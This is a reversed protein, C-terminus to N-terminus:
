NETPVRSRTFTTDTKGCECFIGAGCGGGCTSSAPANSHSNSSSGGAFGGVTVGKSLCIALLNQVPGNATTLPVVATAPIIVTSPLFETLASPLAFGSAGAIGEVLTNASVPGVTAGVFGANTATFFIDSSNCTASSDLRRAERERKGAPGLRRNLTGASMAGSFRTSATATIPIAQDVTIVVDTFVTVDLTASADTLTLEFPTPTYSLDFQTYAGLM